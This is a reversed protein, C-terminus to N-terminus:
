FYKKLFIKKSFIQKLKKSFIGFVKEWTFIKKLINNQFYIFGKGLQFINKLFYKNQIKLFYKWFM